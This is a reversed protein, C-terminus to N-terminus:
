KEFSKYIGLLRLDMCMKKLEEFAERFSKEDGEVDIYFRYEWNEKHTPRSEIRTLNLNGLCLLAQALSGKKHKLSFYVSAKNANEIKINNKSIIFFRTSNKETMAINEALPYLNYIKMAYRSAVAANSKDGTEAVFKASVATNFYPIKLWDKHQSLFGECQTLGQEHSYVSKIDELTAGKVGMLVHDIKLIYEGVVYLEKEGLLDLNKIVAGSISNEVPVVGFDCEGSKVSDFVGAFDEKAIKIVDKDKFYNKLAESSYAGETGQYAVKM